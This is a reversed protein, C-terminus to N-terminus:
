SAGMIADPAPSAAPTSAPPPPSGAAGSQPLRVSFRIKALQEAAMGIRRLFPLWRPDSRIRDFLFEPPIEFLGPDHYEVAKELWLFSPDAQGRYGYVYAINYSWDRAYKRTLVAVASDSQASRGLAHDVMALGILRWVESPEQQMEALAAPADGKLLLAVGIMHHAITSGPSLSLETRFRAIADDYRGAYLNYLGLSFLAGLNVPDRALVYEQVAICENARGLSELLVASTGLVDPNTPDLALARELERAAGALDGEMTALLGLEAHAPAFAPDVALARGAAQRARPLAEANPLVGVLVEGVSNRALETWAPAYRPDLTLVQRYLSDSRLLSEPRRQRGLERALLFLAYARPATARARPPTGGLLRVQLQAAVDRAIEDQIAFVDTLKRDWTESWVQYGDAAHVLAVSIRVQDGAREVSGQLVNAVNLQRAIEQVKLAKGKFSFSSTRAAVRLTPVRTLLDLIDESIGDAFYAQQQDSSLNEFPLVAISRASTAEAEAPGVVSAGKHGVFTNALLLVVAAALIGIIWRDLTRGTRPTVSATPDVESERKIGEPTLEYLWALAIWFPFGLITAIVIGRLVANPVDFVPFVQTAIQVLLWAAAAYLAGARWVNRRKLESFLTRPM